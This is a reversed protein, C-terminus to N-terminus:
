ELFIYLREPMSEPSLEHGLYTVIHPHAMGRLLRLETELSALSKEDQERKERAARNLPEEEGSDATEHNEEGREGGGVSCGGGSMVLQPLLIEKVAILFGTRNEMALFVRGFQGMGITKGPKLDRCFVIDLLGWTKGQASEDAGAVSDRPSLNAFQEPVLSSRRSSLNSNPLSPSLHGAAGAKSSGGAEANSTNSSVNSGAAASYSSRRSAVNSGAASYSSRRSAVNSGAASYSTRRSAVNSGAASYSTRRSSGTSNPVVLSLPSRSPGSSSPLTLLSERRGASSASERRPSPPVFPPAAGAGTTLGVPLAGFGDDEGPDGPLDEDNEKAEGPATTGDRMKSNTRASSAGGSPSSRPTQASRPSHVSPGASAGNTGGGSAVGPGVGQIQQSTPGGGMMNIMSGRAGGSPSHLVSGQRSRDRSRSLEGDFNHPSHLGSQSQRMAESITMRPSPPLSNLLNEKIQSEVTTPLFRHAQYIAGAGEEHESHDSADEDSSSDDSDDSSSSQSEEHDLARREAETMRKGRPDLPAPFGAGSSEEHDLARRTEAEDTRRKGRPDLPAPFGSSQVASAASVPRSRLADEDVEEITDTKKRGAKPSSSEGAMADVMQIVSINTIHSGRRGDLKINKKVVESFRRQSKEKQGGGRLLGVGGLVDDDPNTQARYLKRSESLMSLLDEESDLVSRKRHSTSKSSESAKPATNSSRRQRSSSETSGAGTTGDDAAPLGVHSNHCPTNHPMQPQSDDDVGRPSLLQGRSQLPGAFPPITTNVSLTKKVSVPPRSAEQEQPATKNSPGHKASVTANGGDEFPEDAPAEAERGAAEDSFDGEEERARSEALRFLKEMLTEDQEFISVRELSPVKKLQKNTSDTVLNEEHHFGESCHDKQEEKQTDEPARASAGFGAGGASVTKSQETAGDKSFTFSSSITGAEALRGPENMRPPEESDGVAKGGGIKVEESVVRPSGQAALQLLTKPPWKEEGSSLCKETTSSVAERQELLLPGSPVSPRDLHVIEEEDNDRGPEVNNDRPEVGPGVGTRDERPTASSSVNRGRRPSSSGGTPTTSSGKPASSAPSSAAPVVAAGGPAGSTCTSGRAPTGLLASMPYARIPTMKGPSQPSFVEDDNSISKRLGVVCRFKAILESAKESASLRSPHKPCTKESASLRSPHKPYSPCTKESASLRSPHKPFFFGAESSRGAHLCIEREAEVVGPERWTKFYWPSSVMATSSAFATTIPNAM